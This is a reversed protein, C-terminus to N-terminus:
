QRDSVACKENEMIKVGPSRITLKLTIKLQYMMWGSRNDVNMGSHVMVIHKVM